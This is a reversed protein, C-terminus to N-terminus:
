IMNDQWPVRGADSSYYQMLYARQAKAAKTMNNGRLNELATLTRPQQRWEGPIVRHTTPDERDALSYICQPRTKRILNHLVCCAMTVVVANDPRLLMPKMLVRFRHSLIGFANEVVRRARSLRYNFIREEKTMQRTPFPKMLWDRLPFADDAVIFHPLPEPDGPLSKKGPFGMSAADIKKRLSCKNFVGGDSSAGPTGIDVYVFNYDADVLAMLVLSFFGKYNYYLSGTKKPCQIAVHKGDLAGLCNHFQWKSSFGQAIIEWDATTTPCPLVEDAYEEYIARCTDPVILSITNHPIRFNYALSHYSDGSALFRLTVALREGASIPERWNQKRRSLRPELRELLEEFMDVDVRSYNRFTPPDELTLEVLLTHFHGLEKRRKVWPKVWCSRPKRQRKRARVRRKEEEHLFLVAISCLMLDDDEM